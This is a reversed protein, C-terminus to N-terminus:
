ATLRSIAARAEDIARGLEVLPDGAAAGESAAEAFHAEAAQAAKAVRWAGVALASGRLRHAIDAKAQVGVEALRLRASLKASQVEFMGLLEVELAEDGDTQRALHVLDIAPSAERSEDRTAELM